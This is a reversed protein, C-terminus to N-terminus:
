TQPRNALSHFLVSLFSDARCYTQGGSQRACGRCIIRQHIACRLTICEKCISQECYAGLERADIVAHIVRNCSACLATQVSNDKLLDSDTKNVLEEKIVIDEGLRGPRRARYTERKRLM